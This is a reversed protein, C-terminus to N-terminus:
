CLGAPVCEGGIQIHRGLHPVCRSWQHSNGPTDSIRYGHNKHCFCVQFFFTITFSVVRPFM